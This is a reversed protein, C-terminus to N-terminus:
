LQLVAMGWQGAAPDFPGDGTAVYLHGAGDSAAGARGWIGAGCFGRSCSSATYFTRVVRGPSDPNIAWVGSRGLNCDQSTTSYLVGDIYSLSSMKSFPPLFHVGGLLVRGDELSLAYLRGDSAVAFVRSRVTDIVPTATLGNPCLWDDAASPKAETVFDAQWVREGTEADLAFVHNDSGGVIVLQRGGHNVVLPPTLGALVHPTNPLVTKWVRRLGSVNAASLTQEARNWGTRQLDYAASTWQSRGDASQGATAAVCVGATLLQLLPRAFGRIVNVRSLM